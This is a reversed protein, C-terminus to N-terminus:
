GFFTAEDRSVDTGQDPYSFVYKRHRVRALGRTLPLTEIENADLLVIDPTIQDVIRM